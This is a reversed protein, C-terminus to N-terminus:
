RAVNYHRWCESENGAKAAEAALYLQVKEEERWTAQENSGGQIRLQIDDQAHKVADICKPPTTNPGACSTLAAACVGLWFALHIRDYTKM